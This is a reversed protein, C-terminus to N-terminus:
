YDLLNYKSSRPITKFKNYSRKEKNQKSKKKKRKEIQSSKKNRSYKNENSEKISLYESSVNQQSNIYLNEIYIKSKEKMLSNYQKEFTTLEMKKVIKDSYYSDNYECGHKHLFYLSLENTFLLPIKPLKGFYSRNYEFLKNSTIKKLKIFQDHKRENYKYFYNISKTINYRQYKYHVITLMTTYNNIVDEYSFEHYTEKYEIMNMICLKNFLKTHPNDVIKTITIYRNYYTNTITTRGTITDISDICYVNLILSLPTDIDYLYDSDYIGMVRMSLNISNHTLIQGPALLITLYGRSNYKNNRNISTGTLKQTIINCKNIISFEGLKTIFLCLDTGHWKIIGSTATLDNFAVFNTLNPFVFTIIQIKINKFIINITYRTCKVIYTNIPFHLHLISFLTNQIQELKYNGISYIDIDSDLYTIKDEQPVDFIHRAMREVVSGGISFIKTKILKMIFQYIIKKGCIETLFKSYFRETFIYKNFKCIYERNLTKLRTNLTNLLSYTYHSVVQFSMIDRISLYSCIDNNINNDCILCFPNYMAICM